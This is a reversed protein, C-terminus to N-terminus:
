KSCLECRKPDLLAMQGQKLSSFHEECLRPPGYRRKLRNKLVKRNHKGDSTQSSSAYSVASLTVRLALLTLVIGFPVIFM